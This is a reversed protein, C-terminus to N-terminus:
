TFSVKAVTTASYNSSQISFLFWLAHKCHYSANFHSHGLEVWVVCAAHAVIVLCMGGYIIIYM